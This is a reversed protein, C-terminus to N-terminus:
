IVIAWKNITKIAIFNVLLMCDQSIVADAFGKKGDRLQM